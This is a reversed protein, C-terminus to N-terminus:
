RDLREHARRERQLAGPFCVLQDLLPLVDPLDDKNGLVARTVPLAPPIPRASTSSSFCSPASTSSSSRTVPNSTESGVAHCDTSRTSSAHRFAPTVVAVVDIVSSVRSSYRRTTATFM